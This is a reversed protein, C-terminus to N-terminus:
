DGRRGAQARERRGSRRRRLYGMAVFVGLGAGLPALLDATLPRGPNTIWVFAAMLVTTIVAAAWQAGAPHKDILHAM